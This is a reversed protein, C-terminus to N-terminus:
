ENLERKIIDLARFRTALLRGLELLFMISLVPERTCMKEFEVQSLKLLESDESAVVSAFRPKNDFFSLEGFVSGATITAVKKRKQSNQMPILVEFEGKLIIYLSNDREMHSIIEVGNSCREISSYSILKNWDEETFDAFFDDDQNVITNPYEFLMDFKSM